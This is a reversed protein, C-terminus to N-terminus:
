IRLHSVPPALASVSRSSNEGITLFAVNTKLHAVIFLFSFFYQCHEISDNPHFTGSNTDGDGHQSESQATTDDANETEVHASAHDGREM